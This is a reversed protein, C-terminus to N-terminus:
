SLSLGACAPNSVLLCVLDLFCADCNAYSSPSVADVPGPDVLCDPPPPEEPLISSEPKLQAPLHALKKPSNGRHSTNGRHRLTIGCVPGPSLRAHAVPPMRPRLVRLLFSPEDSKNALKNPTRQQTGMGAPLHLRSPSAQSLMHRRM